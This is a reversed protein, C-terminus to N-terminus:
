IRRRGNRTCCLWKSLAHSSVLRVRCYLSSGGKAPGIAGKQSLFRGAGCSSRERLENAVMNVPNLPKLSSFITECAIAHPAEAEVAARIAPVETVVALLYKIRALSLLVGYPLRMSMSSSPSVKCHTLASASRQFTLRTDSAPASNKSCCMCPRLHLITINALSNRSPFWSRGSRPLNSQLQSHVIASRGCQNRALCGHNGSVTSGVFITSPPLTDLTIHLNSRNNKGSVPKLKLVVPM